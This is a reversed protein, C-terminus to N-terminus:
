ALSKRFIFVHVNGPTPEYRVLEIHEDRGWGIVEEYGHFTARPTIFYDYFLNVAGKWTRRGQSKVLHVGWYLPIATSFIIARGLATKEMLRIPAGVYNYLYYYYRRRKYVGVYLLGGARAIRVNEAFAARPDPTVHLVGDSIVVDFANDPLPLALNSARAFAAQPCRARAIRISQESIDVAVVEAKTQVLFLTARGPGCGIEAVRFGARINHDIFQRFSESQFARVGDPTSPTIFDFPYADYHATTDKELKLQQLREIAKM